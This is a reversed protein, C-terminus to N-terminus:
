SDEWILHRSRRPATDRENGTLRIEGQPDARRHDGRPPSLVGAPALAQCQRHEGSISIARRVIEIMVVAMKLDEGFAELPIRPGGGSPPSTNPSRPHPPRGREMGVEDVCHFEEAAM